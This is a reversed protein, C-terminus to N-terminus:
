AVPPARRPDRAHADEPGGVHQEALDDVRRDHEHGLRVHGGALRDEDVSAHWAASVWLPQVLSGGLDSTHLLDVVENDRVKVDVVEASCCLQRLFHWNYMIFFCILFFFSGPDSVIGMM